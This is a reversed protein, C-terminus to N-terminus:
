QVTIQLRIQQPFCCDYCSEKNELLLLSHIYLFFITLHLYCPGCDQHSSKTVSVNKEYPFSYAAETETDLSSPHHPLLDWLFRKRM